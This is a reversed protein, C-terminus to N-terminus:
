RCMERVYHNPEDSSESHAWRCHLDVLVDEFNKSIGKSDRPYRCVTKRRLHVNLLRIDHALSVPVPEPGGYGSFAYVPLEM